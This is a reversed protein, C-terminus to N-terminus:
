RVVSDPSFRKSGKPGKGNLVVGRRGLGLSRRARRPGSFAPLEGFGRGPERVSGRALAPRLPVRLDPAVEVALPHEGAVPRHCRRESTPPMNSGTMDPFPSESLARVPRCSTLSSPPTVRSTTQCGWRMIVRALSSPRSTSWRSSAPMDPCRSPERASPVDTATGIRSDRAASIPKFAHCHLSRM